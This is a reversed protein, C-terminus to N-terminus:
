GSMISPRGWGVGQRIAAVPDNMMDGLQDWDFSTWPPLPPAREEEVILGTMLGAAYIAPQYGELWRTILLEPLRLALTGWEDTDNLPPPLQAINGVNGQRIAQIRDFIARAHPLAAQAHEIKPGERAIQAAIDGLASVADAIGLAGDFIARQDENLRINWGLDRLFANLAARSKSAAIVPAFVQALISM